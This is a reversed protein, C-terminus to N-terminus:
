LVRDEEEIAKELWDIFIEIRDPMMNGKNIYKGRNNLLEKDTKRISEDATIIGNICLQHLDWRAFMGELAESSSDKAILLDPLDMYEEFVKGKTDEVDELIEDISWDNMFFLKDSKM